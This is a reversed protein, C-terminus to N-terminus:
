EPNWKEIIIQNQDLNSLMFDRAFEIYDCKYNVGFGHIRIFTIWYLPQLVQGISPFCNSHLTLYLTSPFVHFSLTSHLTQWFTFHFLSVHSSIIVNSLDWLKESGTIVKWKGLKELKSLTENKSNAKMERQNKRVEFM